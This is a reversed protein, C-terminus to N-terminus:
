PRANIEGRMELSPLGEKIKLNLSLVGTIFDKLPKWDSLDFSYFLQQEINRAYFTKKIELTPSGNEFDSLNVIEGSLLFRVPLATGATFKLALEPHKGEIIELSEQNSVDCINVVKLENCGCDAPNMGMLCTASFLLTLLKM